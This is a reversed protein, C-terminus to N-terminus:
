FLGGVGFQVANFGSRDLAFGIRLRLLFITYINILNFRSSFGNMAQQM